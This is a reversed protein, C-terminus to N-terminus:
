IRIWLEDDCSKPVCLNFRSITWRIKELHGEDTERRLMSMLLDKVVAAHDRRFVDDEEPTPERDRPFTDALYMPKKISLFTVRNAIRAFVNLDYFDDDSRFLHYKSIQNLPMSDDVGAYIDAVVIDEVIIRPYSAIQSEVEHARVLAQGFVIREDHYLKGKAQIVRARESDAALHRKCLAVNESDPEM